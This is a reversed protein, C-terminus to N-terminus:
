EPFDARHTEIDIGGNLRGGALGVARELVSTWMHLQVEKAMRLHNDPREVPICREDGWLVHVGDWPVEDRRPADGLLAYTARPTRGGSLAVFAQGRDAVAGRCVDIFRAAATRALEDPDRCVTVVRRM